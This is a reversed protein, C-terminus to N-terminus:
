TKNINWLRRTHCQLRLVDEQRLVSRLSGNSYYLSGENCRYWKNGFINNDFYIQQQLSNKILTIKKKRKGM